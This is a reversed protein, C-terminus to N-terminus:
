LLQATSHSVVFGLADDAVGVIVAYMLQIRFEVPERVGRDIEIRHRLSGLAVLQVGKHVLSNVAANNCRTRQM